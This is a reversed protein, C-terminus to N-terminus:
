QNGRTVTPKRWALNKVERDLPTGAISNTFNSMTKVALGLVVELAQQVDYGADFFAKLEAPGVHVHSRHLVVARARHSVPRLRRPPRHVRCDAATKPATGIPHCGIPGMDIDITFVGYRM